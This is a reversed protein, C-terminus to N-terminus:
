DSLWFTVSQNPSRSENKKRPTPHSRTWKTRQDSIPRNYWGRILSSYPAKPPILIPLLFRLVRIFGEETGNQGCCIRCSKVQSKVRNATIPLRRSIAQAIARGLDLRVYSSLILVLRLIHHSPPPQVCTTWFLSEYNAHHLIRTYM